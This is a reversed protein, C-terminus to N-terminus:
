NFQLIETVLNQKFQILNYKAKLISRSPMSKGIDHIKTIIYYNKCVKNNLPNLKKQILLSSIQGTKLRKSLHRIAPYALSLYLQSFM